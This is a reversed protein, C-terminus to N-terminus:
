NKNSELVVEILNPATALSCHDLPEYYHKTTKLRARSNLTHTHTTQDGSTERVKIKTENAKQVGKQRAKIM